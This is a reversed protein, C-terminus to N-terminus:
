ARSRHRRWANPAGPKPEVMIQVGLIETLPVSLHRAITDPNSGADYGHIVRIPNAPWAQARVIAPTALTAAASVILTRRRM